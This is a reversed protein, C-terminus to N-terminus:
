VYLVKPSIRKREGSSVRDRSKKKRPYKSTELEGPKSELIRSSMDEFRGPQGMRVDASIRTYLGSAKKPDVDKTAESLRPM